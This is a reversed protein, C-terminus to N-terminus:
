KLRSHAWLLLLAHICPNSLEINGTAELATLCSCMYVLLERVEKAEGQYEPPFRSVVVSLHEVLVKVEDASLKPAEAANMAASRYADWFTPIYKTIFSFDKEPSLTGSNKLWHTYSAVGSSIWQFDKAKAGSLVFDLAQLLQVDSQSPRRKKFFGM